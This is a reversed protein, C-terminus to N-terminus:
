PKGAPPASKRLWVTIQAIQTDDLRGQYSPMLGPGENIAKAIAQDTLDGMRALLNPGRWTGSGDGGHCRYCDIGAVTHGDFLMQGPDTIRDQPIQKGACAGFLALLAGAILFRFVGKSSKGRTM